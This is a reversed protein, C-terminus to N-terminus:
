ICEIVRWKDQKINKILDCFQRDISDICKNRELNLLALRKVVFDKKNAPVSEFDYVKEQEHWLLCNVEGLKSFIGGITGEVDTVVNGEAKYVKNSSFVLREVPILGSCADNIFKNIEEELQMEQLKLSKQRDKDESHYQKLKVVTLKDCLSGLTESM